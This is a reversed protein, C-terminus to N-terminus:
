PTVTIQFELETLPVLLRKQHPWAVWRDPTNRHAPALPAFPFYQEKDKREHDLKDLKIPSLRAKIHTLELRGLGEIRDSAHALSKTELSDTVQQKSKWARSCHGDHEANTVPCTPLSIYRLLPM